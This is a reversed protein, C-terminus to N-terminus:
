TSNRKIFSLNLKNTSPVDHSHILNYLLDAATNGLEKIPQHITSLEVVKSIPQNDFGTVALSDPVRVGQKRAEYIIGAAVYDSGVVMATPRDPLSFLQRAVQIGDEITYKGDFYWDAHWRLQYKQQYNFFSQKRNIGVGSKANGICLGIHQHGQERLHDLALQLGSEHDIFVSAISKSESVECSIIKGYIAMEDLVHPPSITSGLILGDVLKYKLKNFFELEQNSDNNSQHLM